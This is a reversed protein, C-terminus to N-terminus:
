KREEIKKENDYRKKEAEQFNALERM